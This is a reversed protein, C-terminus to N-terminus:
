LLDAIMRLDNGGGGGSGGGRGGDSGGGGGGDEGGGGWCVARISHQKLIGALLEAWPRMSVPEGEGGLSWNEGHGGLM